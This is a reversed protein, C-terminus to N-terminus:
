DDNLLKEHNPFSCLSFGKYINRDPLLSLLDADVTYREHLEESLRGSLRKPAYGVDLFVPCKVLLHQLLVLSRSVIFSFDEFPSFEDYM